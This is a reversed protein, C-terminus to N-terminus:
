WKELRRGGDVSKSEASKDLLWDMVDDTGMVARWESEEPTLEAPVSPPAPKAKAQERAADDWIAQTIWGLFARRLMERGDPM